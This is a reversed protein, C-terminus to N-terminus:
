GIVHHPTEGLREADMQGFPLTPYDFDLFSDDSQERNRLTRFLKESFVASFGNGIPQLPARGLCRL